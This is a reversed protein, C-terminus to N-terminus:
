QTIREIIRGVASTEWAREHGYYWFSKTVVELGVLSLAATPKGTVLFSLVFTDLAGLLRWSVAKAASKIRSNM